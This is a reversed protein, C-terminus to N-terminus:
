PNSPRGAAEGLARTLNPPSFKGELRIPPGSPPFIVTLPPAGRLHEYLLANAPADASTVDGRMALVNRDSLERAVEPRDYVLYDVVKCSLCWSATFDVLVIQGARNAQAIRQEDFPQFRVALARPPSLLGIGAAVVLVAALGRLVGKAPLPWDYRVLTGWVWLGFVLVVGYAVTRAVATDARLTGILWVAVGLLVFGMAQRLLEMWRGPRPLRGLLSPMTALVAHPAAMGVGMLVIALSGLWLPQLQAWAFALVLIAFSCPTSLVAMMLGMGLSALHGQGRGAGELEALRRPVLVTFVGFLNAAMAVVVLAMGIRFPVSQFHRGWDLTRGAALRLVVNAGALAVFLLAVGAAFALGVTVFRRRSQRALEVVSLIRVPIVPLVCPMVNMILGALLALGLGAWVSLQSAGAAGAPRSTSEDRLREAPRASALGARMAGSWDENAVASKGVQVTAASEAHVPICQFEKESCVQGSVTLKIEKQGPPADAPVTIPVYAIAQGTYVFTTVVVGGVDTPHQHDMPWLVAGVQWPGASIAISAPIPAFDGGGPSPSYFVWGEAVEMTVAVHFTQGPAVQKYSPM